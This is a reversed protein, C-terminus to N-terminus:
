QPPAEPCTSPPWMGCDLWQEQLIALDAEDVRCDGNLDAPPRYLCVGRGTDAFYNEAIQEASLAYNCVKVEDLLGGFPPGETASAMGIWFPADPASGLSSTGNVAAALGDRYITTAAGDHTVAVCTWEGPTLRSAAGSNVNLETTPNRQIRIQGTGLVLLTWEMAGTWTTRKSLVATDVAAGDWNLWLSLTLQRTVVSPALTGAQAAAAVSGKLADAKFGEVFAVGGPDVCTADDTMSDEGSKDVLRGSVFDAQDMTWHALLRRVGVRIVRTVATQGNGMAVCYYYGEDAQRADPIQLTATVAGPVATDDARTQNTADPTRYWQWSMAAAGTITFQATAIATEGPAVMVDNPEAAVVPGSKVTEFTWVPGELTYQQGAEVIAEDVRWYVVDDIAVQVAGAYSCRQDISGNGDADVPVVIPTMGAFDASGKRVYLEHRLLGPDPVSEDEISPVPAWTLTVPGAPVGTAGNAPGPDHATVYGKKLKINSIALVADQTGKVGFALANLGNVIDLPLEACAYVTGGGTVNDWWVDVTSRNSDLLGLRMTFHHIDTTNEIGGGSPPAACAGLAEYPADFLGNGPLPVDDDLHIELAIDSATGLAVDIEAGEGTADYGSNIFGFRFHPFNGRTFFESSRSQLDFDLYVALGPEGQVPEFRGAALDTDPQNDKGDARFVFGTTTPETISGGGDDDVYFWQDTLAIQEFAAVDAALAALITTLIAMGTLLRRAAM